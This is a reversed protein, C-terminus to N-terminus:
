DNSITITAFNGIDVRPINSGYRANIAELLVNATFAYGRPTPHVGDLSFGGGTVFTSTLTGGNFTVGGNAVQQLASRADAFALGNANALAQITTNYSNQAVTVRAQEASTLVFQDALPVSVGNILTPDNNIITGLVGSATLPIIDNENVQRLQGLLNATAADLSVPPAQLIASVDTLDDDTMIPFNVGEVFNITRSAAEEATIINFSVLTPLVVTNYLGFNDNLFAATPADLPISQAPVTTFFPISTVDPINVLVGDAGSAALADVMQSYAGAFVTPDTIDNGGYTSPDFNGTQDVGAGGSTAYGLIDNNGIWLSFFSPNQAVADGIVTADPSSAFRVFYPNASIPTTTLGGINGYGPFLLDFSRAGPVGVNNFPGSLINSVETTPTQGIIAPAPNGNEDTALVFRPNFGPIPNGGLLLGGVNDNMLPQTFTGGGALAFQEAMINPYSDEQGTIYLTGDAFGATLSNGVSVYNSFDAEGSTYFGDEDIPTDFEPECAVFGFGIAFVAIYKIYKKM